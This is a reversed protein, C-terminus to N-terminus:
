ARNYDFAVSLLKVSAGKAKSVNLLPSRELGYGCYVGPRQCLGNGGGGNQKKYLLAADIQVERYFIIDGLKGVRGCCQALQETM